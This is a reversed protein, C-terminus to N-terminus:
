VIYKDFILIVNYIKSNKNSLSIHRLIGLVLGYIMKIILAELLTIGYTLFIRKMTGPYVAGLTVLYIFFFIILIFQIIYYAILKTKMKSILSKYKKNILEIKKEKEKKKSKKINIIENYKGKNTLLCNIIIYIIWTIILTLLGYGLHLGFGPYNEKNWINKITKINYFMAILNLLFVHYLIYVSLNLFMIEYKRQFLIIKTLYIKDLIEALIIVYLDTDYKDKVFEYYKKLLRQEIKIETYLNIEKGKNKELEIEDFENIKYNNVNKRKYVKEESVTELEKGKEKKNKEQINGNNDFLSENISEVNFNVNEEVGGDIEILNQEEHFPGNAKVNTYDVNEMKQLLVKANEKVTFPLMNKEVKKRVGKDGDNFYLFLFEEPIFDIENNDNENNSRKPPANLRQTTKIIEDFENKNDSIKENIDLKEQEIYNDTIDNDCIKDSFFLKFSKYGFLILLILFVIEIIIIILMYYFGINNKIRKSDSLVSICKLVPFNSEGDQSQIIENENIDINSEHERNLDFVNKFTCDCYIRDEEFDTHNYTCNDECLSYHPLLYKSRDELILDKGNIEVSICYDTYISDKKNFTDVNSYEEYIEKGVNYKEILTNLDNVNNLNLKTYKLNRLRSSHKHTSLKEYNMIINSFPYSIKIGGKACISADLEQGNRSNLFKYEVPNILYDIPTEKKDFKLIIIEDDPLMNNSEYLDQICESLDIYSLSSSTKNKNNHKLKNEKKNKSVGYFEVTLNSNVLDIIKSDDEDNENENDTDDKRSIQYLSVINDTLVKAFETSNKTDSIQQLECIGNENEKTLEPCEEYCIGNYEVYKKDGLNCSSICEMTNILLSPKEENCSTEACHLNKEPEDDQYWYGYLKNCVCIEKEEDYMTYKPCNNYYIGNFKKLNELEEDDNKVCKNRSYILNPYETPCSENQGLCIIDDNNENIYFYKVCSCTKPFDSKYATNEPCNNQNYCKNNYLLPNKENCQTGKYCEKNEVILLTGTPCNDESICQIKLPDEENYRWLNNCKCEKSNDQTKLQENSYNDGKNKLLTNGDECSSFCYENFYYEFYEPCEKVCRYTPLVTYKYSFINDFANCAKPEESKDCGNENGEDYWAGKCYCMKDGYKGYLEPLYFGIYDDTNAKSIDDIQKTETLESCDKYCKNQYYYLYETNKCTSVCEKTEDIMIPRESPCEECCIMEDNEDMYWKDPCFCEDNVVISMLPCLNICTKGYKKYYKDFPCYEVCENTETILLERNIAENRICKSNEPLCIIDKQFSTIYYYKDICVCQNYGNVKVIKSNEPCTYDSKHCITGDLSIIGDCKDSCQKEEEILYPYDIQKECTNEEKNLCTKIGRIKDIIFLNECECENTETNIKEYNAKCNEVCKKEYNLYLTKETYDSCKNLCYTLSQTEYIYQEQSCSYVCIKQSLDFFECDSLSICKYDNIFHYPLDGDCSPLCEIGENNSNKLEIYFYGQPCETYCHKIDKTNITETIYYPYAGNCDNGLCLKSNKSTDPNQVYASCTETCVFLDPTNSTAKTITFYPSPCDDLCKKETDIYYSKDKLCNPACYNDYTYKNVTTSCSEYCVNDYLFTGEPCINRCLYENEKHYIYGSISSTCQNICIGNKDEYKTECSTKCLNGDTKGECNKKCIKDTNDYYYYGSTDTDCSNDCHNNERTYPKNTLSCSSVCSFEYSSSSSYSDYFYIKQDQTDTCSKTCINTDKIVYDGPYCSSLCIQSNIYYFKDGDTPCSSTCIYENDVLKIKKTNPCTSICEGTVEDVYTSPPCKSICINNSSLFRKYNSNTTACNNTCHLKDDILTLFKYDTNKDCKDVCQNTGEDKIRKTSFSCETDCIKENGYYPYDCSDKCIHKDDETFMSFKEGCNTKCINNDKFLNGCDNLCQKKNDIHLCSSFESLGICQYIAYETGYDELKKYYPTDGDCKTLCNKDNEKVFNEGLPCKTVCEYSTTIYTECSGLNSATNETITFYNWDTPKKCKSDETVLNTPCLNVLGGNFIIYDNLDNTCKKESNYYNYGNEVCSTVCEKITTSDETKQIYFPADYPCTTLCQNGMYIFNNCTDVCKKGDYYKNCQKLCIKNTDYYYPAEDPCSDSCLKPGNIAELVFPNNPNSTPCQDVCINQSTSADIYYNLFTPIGNSDYGNICKDLCKKTSDAEIYYYPCSDQCIKKNEIEKYYGSPCKQYCIKNNEYPYGTPCSDLCINNNEIFHGGSDKM